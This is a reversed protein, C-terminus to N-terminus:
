RRPKIWEGIQAQYGSAFPIVMPSTLGAWGIRLVWNPCFFNAGTRVAPTLFIQRLFQQRHVWSTCERSM